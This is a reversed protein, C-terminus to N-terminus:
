SAAGAESALRETPGTATSAHNTTAQPATCGASWADVVRAAPTPDTATSWDISAGSLPRGARPARQVSGPNMRRTDTSVTM